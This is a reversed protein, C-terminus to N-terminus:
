FFPFSVVCEEKEKSTSRGSLFNGEAESIQMIRTRKNDPYVSPLIARVTLLNRHFHLSPSSLHGM